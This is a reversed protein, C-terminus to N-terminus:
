HTTSPWVQGLITRVVRYDPDVPEPNALSGKTYLVYVIYMGLNKPSGTGHEPLLVYILYLKFGLSALKRIHVNCTTVYCYQQKKPNTTGHM